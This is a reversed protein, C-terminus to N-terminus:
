LNINIIFIKNLRCPYHNTFIDEIIELIELKFEKEEM